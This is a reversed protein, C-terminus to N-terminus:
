ALQLQDEDDVARLVLEGLGAKLTEEINAKVTEVSFSGFRRGGTIEQAEVSDSEAELVEDIEDLLADTDDSLQQQDEAHDRTARIASRWLVRGEAAASDASRRQEESNQRPRETNREVNTKAM